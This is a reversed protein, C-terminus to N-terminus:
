RGEKGAQASSRRAHRVPGSKKALALAKELGLVRAELSEIRDQLAMVRRIGEVNVGDDALEGIRILRSVDGASFRRSGGGTRAPELLGEREYKRLTQAHMGTMDTAVSM